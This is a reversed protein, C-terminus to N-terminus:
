FPLVTTMVSPVPPCVGRNGLVFHSFFFLPKWFFLVARQVQEGVSYTLTQLSTLANHPASDLGM